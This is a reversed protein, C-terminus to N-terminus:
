WAHQRLTITLRAPVLLSQSGQLSEGASGTLANRVGGLEFQGLLQHLGAARSLQVLGQPDELRQRILPRFQLDVDGPQHDTSRHSLGFSSRSQLADISLDVFASFARVDSFVGATSSAKVKSRAWTM